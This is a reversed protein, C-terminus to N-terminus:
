AKEAAPGKAKLGRQQKLLAMVAESPRAGQGLWYEYRGMNFAVKESDKKSPDYHGLKELCKGQRKCRADTVVLRFHAKNRRGLRQLRIRVV